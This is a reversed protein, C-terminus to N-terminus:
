RGGSGETRPCRRTRNSRRRGRARDGGEGGEGGMGRQLQAEGDEGHRGGDWRRWAGAGMDGEERRMRVIAPQQGSCFAAEIALVVRFHLLPALDG